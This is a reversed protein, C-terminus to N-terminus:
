EFYKKFEKNLKDDEKRTSKYGEILEAKL